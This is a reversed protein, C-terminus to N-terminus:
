LCVTDYTVSITAGRGPVVQDGFVVSNSPADYEWGDGSGDADRDVVQPGQGDHADVEVLISDPAAQRTLPFQTRAAFSDLGLDSLTAGWNAACHSRFVGGTAQQVYVYRPSAEASIGNADCGGPDDGVIVSLDMLQDNRYGKISKFFDVYFDVPGPSQDVEDSVIIIVLKARERLFGGNAAPASILPESLAMMAAHLGAEQEDSCCTGVNINKAFAQTLNPTDATLIRPYGPHQVLVGPYINFHDAPTEPENIETSIVGIQFDTQLSLAWAIFTAFNQALAQQQPIMSGSNDIVWLVDVMPHDLQQFVDAQTASDTGSGSLAVELTAGIAASSEIVLVGSHSELGQPVYGLEVVFSSAAPLTLPLQVPSGDQQLARLSFDPDSRTPDLSADSITVSSSGINYVTVARAPSACGLTVPGFDLRDPIVMLNLEEGSGSLSLTSAPTDPDSTIVALEGAHAGRRLPTFGLTIAASDHAPIRAPLSPAQVLTFAPDTRPDFGLSELSCPELGRNRILIERSATRWLAVMGFLVEAPVIEIDCEPVDPDNGYLELRTTAQEFDDATVDLGARHPGADVAEYTVTLQKAEGPGLVFPTIPQSAIVYAAAGPGDPEAIAAVHCEATGANSILATKSATQGVAVSGFNMRAPALQIDCIPTDSGEGQLLIYGSEASPDNSQMLVRGGDHGTDVPAYVVAIDVAEGPALRLPTLPLAEFRFEPSSQEGLQVTALTLEQLGCNSVEFSRVADRDIAVAGFDLQLPQSCLRPAIGSGALRVEVQRDDPDNSHILLRGEDRGGDVPAYWVELEAEAPEGDPEAAALQVSFDEPALSFEQASGTALEAAQIVLTERGLNRLLVPTATPEGLPLLDRPGLDLAHPPACDLTEDDPDAADDRVCVQLQPTPTPQARGSLAVEVRPRDPDDSDILLRGAHEGESEPAYVLELEATRGPELRAAPEAALSFPGAPAALEVALLNLAADGGNRVVLRGGASNGLDVLGFDLSCDLPAACEAVASAGGDGAELVLAPQQLEVRQGDCGAAALLGLGILLGWGARGVGLNWERRM